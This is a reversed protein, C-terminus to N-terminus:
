LQQERKYAYLFMIPCISHMMAMTFWFRLKQLACSLVLTYVDCLRHQLFCGECINYAEVLSM